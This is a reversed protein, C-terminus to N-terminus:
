LLEQLLRQHRALLMRVGAHVSLVWACGCAGFESLLACLCRRQGVVGWSQLVTHLAFLHKRNKRMKWTALGPVLYSTAALRGLTPYESYKGPTNQRAWSVSFWRASKPLERGPCLPDSDSCLIPTSCLSPSPAALSHWLPRYGPSRAGEREGPASVMQLRQRAQVQPHACDGSGAFPQAARAALVLAREEGRDSALGWGALAARVAAPHGPREAPGAGGHRGARKAAAGRGPGLVRGPAGSRARSRSRSLQSVRLQRQGEECARARLGPSLPEGRGWVEQSSKM